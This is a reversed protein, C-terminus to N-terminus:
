GKGLMSFAMNVDDSMIDGTPPNQGFYLISFNPLLACVYKNDLTDFWDTIALAKNELALLYLLHTDLKEEDAICAFLKLSAFPIYM